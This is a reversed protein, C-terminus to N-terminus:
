LTLVSQEALKTGCILEVARQTGKVGTVGSYLTAFKSESSRDAYGLEDLREAVLKATARAGYPTWHIDRKFFFDEGEKQELARWDVVELGISDYYNQAQYYKEVATDYGPGWQRVQDPHMIGRTPTFLLIVQVGISDLVDVFKKLHSDHKGKYGFDETLDKMTVFIWGNDGEVLKYNAKLYKSHYASDQELAACSIGQPEIGYTPASQATYTCALCSFILSLRTIAKM